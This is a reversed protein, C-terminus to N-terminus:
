EHQVTLLNSGMGHPSMIEQAAVHGAKMAKRLAKAQGIAEEVKAQHQAHLSRKEKTAVTSMLMRNKIAFFFKEERTGLFYDAFNGQVAENGGYLMAVLFALVERVLSDSQTSLHPLVMLVVEHENLANQLNEIRQLQKSNGKIDLEWNEPLIVTENHILGRLLQLCKIDLVEQDLRDKESLQTNGASIALQRILKSALVYQESPMRKHRQIFCNIHSQFEEGLPLDEDGGLETYDVDSPYGVQARITNPGGYVMSYNLAFTNLQDNLEEEQQYYEIYKKKAENIIDKVMSGSGYKEQFEQMMKKALDIALGSDELPLTSVSMIVNMCSVLTKMHAPNSILPGIVRMFEVLAKALKDTYDAENPFDEVNPQYCARFFV